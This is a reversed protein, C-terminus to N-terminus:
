EVIVGDVLIRIPTNVANSRIIVTKRFGGFPRTKSDFRVDVIASDGPEIVKKDCSAKTCGCGSFITSIVLTSDGDNYVTFMSDRIQDKGFHGLDLVKDSLRIHPGRLGGAVCIEALALVVGAVVPLLVLRRHMEM